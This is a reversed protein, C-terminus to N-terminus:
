KRLMQKFEEFSIKKLGEGRDVREIAKMTEENPEKAVFSSEIGAKIKSGKRTQVLTAM